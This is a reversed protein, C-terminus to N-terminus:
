TSRGWAACAQRTTPSQAGVRVDPAWLPAPAPPGAALEAWCARGIGGCGVVPANAGGIASATPGTPVPTEPSSAMVLEREQIDCSAPHSAIAEPVPTCQASGEEPKNSCCPWETCRQYRCADFGVRGASPPWSRILRHRPWPRIEVEGREGHQLRRAPHDAATSHVLADVPLLLERGGLTQLLFRGLIRLQPSVSRFRAVSAPAPGVPRGTNQKRGHGGKGSFSGAYLETTIREAEVCCRGTARTPQFGSSTIANAPRIQSPSSPARVGFAEKSVRPQGLHGDAPPWPRHGGGEVIGSNPSRGAV